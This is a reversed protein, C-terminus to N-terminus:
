REDTPVFSAEIDWIMITEIKERDLDIEVVKLVGKGHRNSNNLDLAKHAMRRPTGEWGKESVVEQIAEKVANEKSNFMQAHKLGSAWYPYGGSEGDIGFFQTKTSGEKKFTIVFM